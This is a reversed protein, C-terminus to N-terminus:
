MELRAYLESTNVVRTFGMSKLHEALKKDGTWLLGETQLTLAVYDMDFLDVGETL